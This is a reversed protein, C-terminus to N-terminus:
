TEFDIQRTQGLKVVDNFHASCIIDLERYQSYGNRGQSYVCKFVDRYSLIPMGKSASMGYPMISV